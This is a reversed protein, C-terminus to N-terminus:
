KAERQRFVVSEPRFTLFVCTKHYKEAIAKTLDMNPDNRAPRGFQELHGKRAGNKPGNHDVKSGNQNVIADCLM